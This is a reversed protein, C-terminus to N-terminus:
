GLCRHERRYGEGSPRCESTMKLNPEASSTTAFRTAPYKLKLEAIARFTDLLERSIESKPERNLDPGLETIVQAHLRAHQRIDLTQLHFGFKRVKRLLSSIYTHALREGGNSKLSERVLVLDQEFEAANCYAASSDASERTHRLKHFIYSLLRRYKEDQNQPGWALHVGRITREYLKLRDLLAKSVATQRRSSSLRDSLSEIDDLYERLILRAGHCACRSHKRTQRRIAMAIVALGLASTSSTPFPPSTSISGMSMAFHNSLKKTSRPLCAFLSLRFYRLGM